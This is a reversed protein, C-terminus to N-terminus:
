KLPVTGTDLSKQYIHLLPRLLEERANQLLNVNIGDPGPASNKKLNKIKNRIKDETFLVSNLSAETERGRVPINSADEVTFVNAFFNNLKEAM